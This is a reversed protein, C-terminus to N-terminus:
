LRGLYFFFGAYSDSWCGTGPSDAGKLAILVAAVVLAAVLPPSSIWEYRSSWNGQFFM